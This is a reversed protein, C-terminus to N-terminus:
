HGVNTEQTAQELERLNDVLLQARSQRIHDPQTIAEPSYLM